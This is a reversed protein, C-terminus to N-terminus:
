GRSYTGVVRNQEIIADAYADLFEERTPEGQVVRALAYVWFYYHHTGHGLPPNPGSYSREGLSNPGPRGVGSTITTLEPALGYLLWHTFGRPRPADPDHCILALEVAASPVGALDLVPAENSGEVACDRPISGHPPFDRSTITLYGKAMQEGQATGAQRKPVSGRGPRLRRIARAHPPSSSVPVTGLEIISGTVARDAYGTTFAAPPLGRTPARARATSYSGTVLRM